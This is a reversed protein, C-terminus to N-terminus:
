LHLFLAEVILRVIRQPPEAGDGTAAWGGQEMEEAQEYLLRTYLEEKSAFHRYLIPKPVGAGAAVEDLSVDDYARRSFVDLAANVITARRDAAPLRQGM